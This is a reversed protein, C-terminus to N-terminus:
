TSTTGFSRAPTRTSRGAHLQPLPAQQRCRRAHVQAGARHGLHRRLGPRPGRRLQAADLFRRPCAERLARRGLDRRGTRRSRSDHPAAVAGRRDPRRPGHHRLRRARRAALLEPGLVGERQRHDPRRGPPGPPHPLRPGDDGLGDERDRRRARLPPRRRQHRHDPERLDRHEPQEAVPLRRRLGERGRPDQAPQEWILDGTAADLAQIVDNPNPMYLVGRYALPTGTQSGDNLSRTWVMRLNGVNEPTVQDLPSYGWGNATRRWSLWDGPAPNELM